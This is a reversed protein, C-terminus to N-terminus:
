YQHHINQPVHFFITQFVLIGMKVHIVRKAPPYESCGTGSSPLPVNATLKRKFSTEKRSFESEL